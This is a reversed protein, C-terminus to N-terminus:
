FNPVIELVAGGARAERVALIRALEATQENDIEIAIGKAHRAGNRTLCASRSDFTNRPLFREQVRDVRTVGDLFSLRRVVRDVQLADGSIRLRLVPM